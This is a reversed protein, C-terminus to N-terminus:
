RPRTRTAARRAPRVGRTIDRVTAPPVQGHLVQVLLLALTYHRDSRLARELAITVEAGGGDCYAQWAFLTCVPADFPAPTRRMLDLLVPRLQEPEHEAALGDRLLLDQLSTALLAAEQADLTAPPRAADDV